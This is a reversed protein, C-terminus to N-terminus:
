VGISKEFLLVLKLGQAVIGSPDKEVDYTATDSYPGETLIIRKDVVELRNAVNLMKPKSSVFDLLEERLEALSLLKKIKQQDRGQIIFVPDLDEYGSHLDQGKFLGIFQSIKDTWKESYIRLGMNLPNKFYISLKLFYVTQPYLMPGIGAISVNSLKDLRILHDKQYGRYEEPQHSRTFTELEANMERLEGKDLYFGECRPCFDFVTDAYSLLHIKKM